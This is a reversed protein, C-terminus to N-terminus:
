AAGRRRGERSLLWDRVAAKRYHPKGRLFTVPPGIRADRWSKSTRPQIGLENCLENNTFYDDLIPM